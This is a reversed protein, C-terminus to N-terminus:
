PDIATWSENFPIEKKGRIQLYIVRKPNLGQKLKIKISEVQDIPYILIIRRNKGPFGWRFIRVKGELKNFENFGGGVSWLITLWLYISFILGLFGYFCM